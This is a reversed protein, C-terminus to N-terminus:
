LLGLPGLGWAWSLSWSLEWLFSGDPTAEGLGQGRVTFTGTVLRHEALVKVTM